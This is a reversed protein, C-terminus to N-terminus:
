HGLRVEFFALIGVKVQLLNSHNNAGVILFLM